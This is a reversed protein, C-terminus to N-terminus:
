MKALHKRFHDTFVKNYDSEYLSTSELGDWGNGQGEIEFAYYNFKKAEEFMEPYKELFLEVIENNVTKDFPEWFDEFQKMSENNYKEYEAEEEKTLGENSLSKTIYEDYKKNLFEGKDTETKFQEETIGMKQLARKIIENENEEYFSDIFDYGFVSYLREITLKDKLLDIKKVRDVLWKGMHEPTLIKNDYSYANFFSKATEVDLPKKMRLVFSSSSSNSVFGLRKKM